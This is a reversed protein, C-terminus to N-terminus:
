FKLYSGYFYHNESVQHKRNTDNNLEAASDHPKKIEPDTLLSNCDLLINELERL